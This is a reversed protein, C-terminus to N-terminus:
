TLIGSYNILKKLASKSLACAKHMLECYLKWDYDPPTQVHVTLNIEKCM